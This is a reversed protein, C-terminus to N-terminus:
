KFIDKRAPSRDKLAGKEKLLSEVAQNRLSAEEQGPFKNIGGKPLVKNSSKTFVSRLEEISKKLNQNEAHLIVVEESIKNLDRPGSKFLVKKPNQKTRKAPEITVKDLVLTPLGYSQLKKPNFSESFIEKPISMGWRLKGLVLPGLPLVSNVKLTWIGEGVQPGWTPARRNGLGLTSLINTHSAEGNGHGNESPIIGNVKGLKKGVVAKGPESERRLCFDGLIPKTKIWLKTDGGNRLEIEASFVALSKKPTLWPGVGAKLILLNQVEENPRYSIKATPGDAFDSGVQVALDKEEGYVFGSFLSLGLFNVPARLRLLPKKENRFSCSVKFKRHDSAM